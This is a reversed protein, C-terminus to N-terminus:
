KIVMNSKNNKAGTTKLYSIVGKMAKNAIEDANNNGGNVTMSVNYVTNGAQTNEGAISSVTHPTILGTNIADMGKVGWSDVARQRMVYEGASVSLIGGAAYGRIGALISDSTGTGPGKILGGSAKGPIEIRTGDSADWSPPTKHPIGPNYKFTMKSKPDTWTDGAKATKPPTGFKTKYKEGKGDPGATTDAVIKVPMPNGDTWKGDGLAKKVSDLQSNISKETPVAQLKPPTINGGAAAKKESAVTLKDVEAQKADIQKQLDSQQGGSKYDLTNMRKQNELQSALIYNGHIKADVIQGDIDAQSKAYDNQAKLEATAQQEAKLKDQLVKLENKAHTLASKSDVLAAKKAAAVQSHYDAMAKSNSDIAAQREQELSFKAGAIIGKKQDEPSANDPINVLQKSRLILAAIGIDTNNSQFGKLLNATIKDGANTAALELVSYASASSGLASSLGKALGIADQFSTNVDMIRNVVQLAGDAYAKQKLNLDTYDGRFYEMSGATTKLKSMWTATATNVDKTSGTIEKLAANLYETKGAYTLMATVMDTVGKPDMGNAVQAAAFQKVTGIVSSASSYGSILDSTTRVANKKPDAKAIWDVNDQLATTTKGATGTKDTIFTHVRVTQDSLTGGFKEVADKSSRLTNALDENHKKVSAMWMSLGKFALTAVAIGALFPWLTVGLTAMFGEIFPFMMAAMGVNTLTSGAAKAAQNNGGGINSIAQGGIMAGMSIGMAAMGGSRTPVVKGNVVQQGRKLGFNGNPLMPGVQAEAAVMGLTARVKSLFAASWSSAEVVGLEAFASASAEANKLALASMSKPLMANLESTFGEDYATADIMAAEKFAMASEEASKIAAGSLEEPLTSSIIKQIETTYAIASKAASTMFAEETLGQDALIQEIEANSVEQMTERYQQVIQERTIMGEEIIIARIKAQTMRIDESNLRTYSMGSQRATQADLRRQTASSSGYGGIISRAASGAAAAAGSLNVTVQSLEKESLRIQDIFLLAEKDVGEFAIAGSSIGQELRTIAESHVLALIEDNVVEFSVGMKKAFENDLLISETLSNLETDVRAIAKSMTEDLQITGRKVALDGQVAWRGAFNEQALFTSRAMGPGGTKSLNNFQESQRTVSNNLFGVSIESAAITGAEIAKQIKQFLNMVTKSLKQEEGAIMVGDKTLSAQVQSFEKPAALPGGTHAMVLKRSEEGGAYMPLPLSREMMSASSNTGPSMTARAVAAANTMAFGATGANMAGSMGELTVTLRKLAESLLDVADVDKAIESSFLEAAHQSAIIEPTLLEKFTNGGTALAKLNIFGKLVYGAFNALLGTLMIIPGALVALGAFIGLITKVPGPLSSFAKGIKNGINLIMTGMELFKQGVPYLTAKFGELTRQWKATTSETAQKMEQNALIALQASTAGAIKLANVTQSGQNGFNTLLASVRAFQFKGFLKEILQQQILPSLGKLGAQLAMIMKVPNGQTSDKIGTLNIGYKKFEASAASTPAIMSAMASKIANAAQAAPIGAERMAVLMVATDKYTGGLQTMIPGVRPIAETMDGLTMTTQKQIDSLFNVADALNTTSVKYVNQLAVVTNTAAAADVAGLKSLRQTQYTTDLLNQGERGMAAFSAAVKVTESQAIGMQQAVQKGLDLVQGSIADIQAKSPPTLGEGYLRQLKTLELNTDKFSKVAAAGFLLAPMTLGVTLQRGAWQTNKGWTILATSSARVSMNYLNQQMTALKTADTVANIQTPTYVSMIGRKTPDAMVVSNQLKVQEAALAKLSVTAQSAKGTILNFYDSLKLKGAVLAAGFKETEATMTVTQATFQGTSLMTAKFAAQAAGLDKALTSGLGVGAVSKNLLDVQVQLAKIQSNVSAFDGLAVVNLEIRAM